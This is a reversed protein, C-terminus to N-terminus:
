ARKAVEPHMLKHGALGFEAASEWHNRNEIGREVVQTPVRFLMFRRERDKGIRCPGIVLGVTNFFRERAHERSHKLAHRRQQMRYKRFTIPRSRGTAAHRTHRRIKEDVLRAHNASGIVSIVLPIVQGEFLDFGECSFISPKDAGCFLVVEM